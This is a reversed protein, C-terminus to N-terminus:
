VKKSKGKITKVQEGVDTLMENYANVAADGVISHQRVLAEFYEVKYPLDKADTAGVGKWDTVIFAAVFSIIIEEGTADDETIDTLESNMRAMTRNRAKVKAREYKQENKVTVLLQIEKEGVKVTVWRDDAIVPESLDLIFPM